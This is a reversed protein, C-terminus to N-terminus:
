LQGLSSRPIISTRQILPNFRGRPEGRSRSSSSLKNERRRDRSRRRVLWVDKLNMYKGARALVDLIDVVSKMALSELLPGGCLGQTFASFLVEQHATPVELITTNFHQVYARLTKRNSGSFLIHETPDTTSDYAPLHLPAPFNAPLEETIIHKSFPIGREAPLTEKAVQQHLEVM